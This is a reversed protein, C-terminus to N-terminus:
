FRTNLDLQFVDVSFPPGYVADASLWKAALWSDQAVGLNAGLIWGKSNTGGLRFDSDNFADVVADPEIYAYAFNVNWDWRNRMVPAGVQFRALWATSGSKFVNTGGGAVCSQGPALSTGPPLVCTENNNALGGVGGAEALIAGRDYGLNNAYDGTFTLHLRDSVAYDARGILDLVHFQSALGYYEPMAGTTPNTIDPNLPIYTNGKQAFGPKTFDTFCFADTYVCPSPTGEANEFWYIAANGSITWSPSPNYDLGVQGAFLWKDDGNGAKLNSPANTPYDDPTYQVPFAGATASFSLDAAVKSAYSASIGDLALDDQKWVIETSRFPNDMRGFTMSLGGGTWPTWRVYARDLWINKKGFDNGLTQNTSVPGNDNGSALSIVTRFNDNIDAAIGLRARFKLLNRDQTSNLVPFPGSNQDVPSSGANIAPINVFTYANGKDFLREEDRFRFDGFIRIRKTWSPVAEPKAYGRAEEEALVDEKVKKAIDARVSEPVYPVRVVGPAVPTEAAPVAATQPRPEAARARATDAQAQAIIADAQKQTLVRQAVLARVINISLNDSPAADQAIAAAPLLAAFLALASVHGLMRTRHFDVRM